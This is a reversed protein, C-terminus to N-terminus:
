VFLDAATLFLFTNVTKEAIQYLKCNNPVPIAGIIRFTNDRNYATM